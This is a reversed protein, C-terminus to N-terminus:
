CMIIGDVSLHYTRSLNSNNENYQTCYLRLLFHYEMAVKGNCVIAMIESNINNMKAENIYMNDM